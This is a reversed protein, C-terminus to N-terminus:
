VAVARALRDRIAEWAVGEPVDEVLIGAVRQVDASYLAAYLDRAYADPEPGLFFTVHPPPAFRHVDHTILALKGPRSAHVRAIADPWDGPPFLHVPARPAYHRSHQGPSRASAGEALPVDRALAEALESRPVAGPRLVTPTESTLDLVTSEIGRECPGADVVPVAGEFADIVHRAATPSTSGSPNASPAVLPVGAAEILERAVPHDPARVAVTPGGATALDHISSLKPLVLTLPGPWFRDALLTAIPLWDAHEIAMAAGTVHVILPNSAPRRKTEFVRRVAPESTADAALGYVTETPVAVVGGRRIIEAARDVGIRPLNEAPETM